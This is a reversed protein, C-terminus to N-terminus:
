SSQPRRESLKSSLGGGAGAGAGWGGLWFVDRAGCADLEADRRCHLKLNVWTDPQLTIVIDVVVMQGSATGLTGDTAELRTGGSVSKIIEM